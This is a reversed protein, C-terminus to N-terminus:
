LWVCHCVLGLLQKIPGTQKRTQIIYFCVLSPKLKLQKLNHM